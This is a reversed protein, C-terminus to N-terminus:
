SVHIQCMDQLDQLFINTLPQLKQNEAPHLYSDSLCSVYCRWFAQSMCHVQQAPGGGSIFYKHPNDDEM